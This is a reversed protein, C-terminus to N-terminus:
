YYRIRSLSFAPAPRCHSFPALSVSALPSRIRRTLPPWQSDNTRQLLLKNKRMKNKLANKEYENTQEDREDMLEHTENRRNHVM